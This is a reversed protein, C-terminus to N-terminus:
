GAYIQCGCVARLLALERSTISTKTEESLLELVYELDFSHGRALTSAMALDGEAVEPAGAHEALRLLDRTHQLLALGVEGSYRPNQSPIMGKRTLKDICRVVPSVFKQDRLGVELLVEFAETRNPYYAMSHIVIHNLKEFVEECPP